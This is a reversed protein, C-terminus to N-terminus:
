RKRWANSQRPWCQNTYSTSSSSFSDIKKRVENCLIRRVRELSATSRHKRGRRVAVATSSFSIGFALNDSNIHLREDAPSVPHALTSRKTTRQHAPRRSDEVAYCGQDSRTVILVNGTEASSPHNHLFRSSLLSEEAIPHTSSHCLNQFGESRCSRM